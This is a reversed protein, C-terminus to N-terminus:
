YRQRYRFQDHLVCYPASKDEQLIDLRRIIGSNRWYTLRITSASSLALHTDLSIRLSDGSDPLILRQAFLRPRSRDCSELIFDHVTRTTAGGILDLVVPALHSVAAYLALAAAPLRRKPAYLLWAGGLLATGGFARACFAAVGEEPFFIKLTIWGLATMLSIGSIFHRLM